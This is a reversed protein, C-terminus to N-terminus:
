EIKIHNLMSVFSHNISSFGFLANSILKVGQTVWDISGYANGAVPLGKINKPFAEGVV